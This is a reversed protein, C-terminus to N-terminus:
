TEIVQDCSILYLPFVAKRVNKERKRTLTFGFFLEIGTAFFYSYLGLILPTNLVRDFIPAKKPFYHDSLGNECFCEM